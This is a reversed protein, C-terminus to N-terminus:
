KGTTHLVYQGADNKYIAIGGVTAHGVVEYVWFEPYKGSKKMLLAAFSVKYAGQSCKISDASVHIGQKKLQAINLPANQALAAGVAFVILSIVFVIKKM